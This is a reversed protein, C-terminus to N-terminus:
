GSGGPLVRAESALLPAADERMAAEAQELRLLALGYGGRATRLEGVERGDLLIPTGPPPPEGEVTVRMLRKKALGRHKMRATVEQGVYCGKRFDVGNLAEFGSEVLTAKDVELDASGDPLGLSLRWLDYEEATAEPPPLTEGLPLMARAGAAALRPDVYVIGGDRAAAAGADEPLGLAAAAGEGFAASVALEASVDAIEVKSRLRYLSLRKVLAEARAAECDLLLRGDAEAIFFDFLYKGQPTLLAAWIARDRAVRDVDNSVLNQLFSRADPGSVAVVARGPLRASRM